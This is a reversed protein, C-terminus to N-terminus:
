PLLWRAVGNYHYNLERMASAIKQGMAQSVYGHKTIYKSVTSPACGVKKAIDYITTM